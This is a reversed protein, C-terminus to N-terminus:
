PKEGKIKLDEQFGDSRCDKVTCFFMPGFSSNVFFIRGNCKPCCYKEELEKLEKESLDM